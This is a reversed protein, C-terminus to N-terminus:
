HEVLEDCRAAMVFDMDDLGGVKHTWWHLIVRGWEIVIKPHHNEQEAAHGVRNAFLLASAFDQFSYSKVLCMAESSMDIDWGELHELLENCREPDLARTVNSASQEPHEQM